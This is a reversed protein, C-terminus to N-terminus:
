LRDYAETFRLIKNLFSARHRVAIWGGRLHRGKRGNIDRIRGPGVRDFYDAPCFLISNLVLLVAKLM